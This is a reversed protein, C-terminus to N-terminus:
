SHFISSLGVEIKKQYNDFDFALSYEEIKNSFDIANLLGNKTSICPLYLDHLSNYVTLITELLKLSLSQIDGTEVVPGFGGGIRILNGANYTIPILGTRLSEIVPVCFGEHYSASIFIHSQHYIKILSNLDVKGIFDVYEGLGYHKIKSHLLKVYEPDSFDINGVLRLMFPIDTKNRMLELAEIIDVVGKSSFFRGVFLLNIKQKPKNKFNFLPPRDVAIPLEMIKINVIGCRELQETNEQSDSWIGDAHNFIPIQNFSKDIIGWTNEPM